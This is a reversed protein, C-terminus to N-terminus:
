QGAYHQGILDGMTMNGQPTMHPASAFVNCDPVVFHPAVSVFGNSRAAVAAEAADLNPSITTQEGCNQGEPSRVFTMLEVHRLKPYKLKITAIAAETDTEWSQQTATLYDIKAVVFFIRDVDAAECKSKTECDYFEDQCQELWVKHNPDAWYQVLAAHPSKVQWKSGDVHEEFGAAFWEGTVNPGLFETCAYPLEGAGGAGAVGGAGSAGAAGAAGAPGGAGGGASAGASGGAGAGGGSATGAVSSGVGASGATTPAGAVPGAGGGAGGMELPLTVADESCGLVLLGALILPTASALPPHRM